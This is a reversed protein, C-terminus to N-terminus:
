INPMIERAFLEIQDPDETLPNIMLHQIGGEKISQIREILDDITGFLYSHQLDQDTRKHDMVTRYAALQEEIAKDRDTTPVIHAWQAHSVTFDSMDRQKSLHTTVTNIDRKLIDRDTGSSRCIWGSHRSIRELVAPAMNPLDFNNAMHVQSGGGIWIPIPKEPRPYLTIGDVSYYKGEYHVDDETLLRSILELAEDTRKGRERKSVGVSNLEKEDHGTGVGLIVRNGGAFHNLSAVEKATIVPHRMPACLIATGLRVTETVGAVAALTILPDHWATSYVNPAVLMHDIVWIADFGEEEVKTCYPLLARATEGSRAYSPIRWGFSMTKDETSTM